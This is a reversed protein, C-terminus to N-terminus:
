HFHVYPTLVYPFPCFTTLTQLKYSNHRYNISMFCNSTLILYLAYHVYYYSILRIPRTELICLVQFKYNVNCVRYIKLVPLTYRFVGIFYLSM